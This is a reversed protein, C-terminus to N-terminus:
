RRAGIQSVSMSQSIRAPAPRLEDGVPLRESRRDSSRLARSAAPALRFVLLAAVECAAGLWGIELVRDHAVAASGLVAGLSIGIYTASANLSLTVSALRPEMRVLRTQQASPFAWGFVGWAFLLVVLAPLVAGPPLLHPALSLLGFSAVLGLLIVTLLTRLDFRDSAMGGVLNGVAGGVGSVFLLPALAAGTVGAAQGLFPALYTYVTFAGTLALVTLALATLVDPRRAVALRERLGTTPGVGISEVLRWVGALAILAMGAVGAFTIRWGFRDGAVIGLPVGVVVATTMGTYIISLARGRREPPAIAAAYASAAPMFTGAALALVVRAALLAGYSTSLAAFANGLAFMAMSSMLLRRRDRGGTVVALIPSGLAYTLAFVTVLQGAAPISVHLDGAIDPLLGAVMFGETGIAFAGLALCLLSLMM